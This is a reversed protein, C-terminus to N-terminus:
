DTKGEIADRIVKADEKSIIGEEEAKQLQELNKINDIDDKPNRRYFRIAFYIVILLAFGMTIYHYLGFEM